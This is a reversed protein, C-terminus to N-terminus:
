GLATKQLTLYVRQVASMNTRRQKYMAQETANLGPTKLTNNLRTRHAICALNFADKPMIGVRYKSTRPCALEVGRYLTADAVATLSRLADDFSDTAATLSGVVAKNAPDCMRTEETLFAPEVLIMTEADGSVAAEKFATMAKALGSRYSVRGAEAEGETDLGRRGEAISAVSEAIRHLLGITDM